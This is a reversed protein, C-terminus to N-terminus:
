KVILKKSITGFDTDIKMLYIGKAYRSTNISKVATTNREIAAYVERGELNYIAIHEIILGPKVKVFVHSTTPNPYVTIADEVHFDDTGLSSQYCSSATMSLQNCITTSTSRSQVDEAGILDEPSLTRLSEGSSISYHMVVNTDVVHGLQHGHGLEHVTVTEFDVQDNAPPNTSYNWNQNTNFVIDMETVYWKIEGSAEDYCGSYRSYCQGLTGNGMTDDFTIVNVGDNANKNITTTASAIEWNVGTSCTWSEFARTFAENAGSNYFDENMTWTNGGNDNNDIHQTQYAMEGSGANYNLNIQSFDISLANSSVISGNAATNVKITGTGALDPIEVEIKSDTWSAIQNDLADSHLYGGYNADSFGVTGQIAGFGSGNITLVSKTGASSSSSSFSTIAVASSISKSTSSAKNSTVNLDLSKVQKYNEKTYNSIKSYFTNSIGKYVGFANAVIDKDLAYKYFGQASSVSSFANQNGGKGSLNAHPNNRLMFTGFDGKKLNLSHSVIEATLEVVGGKTIIEITNQVQGKFVKYVEVTHATYINHHNDDWFSEKSIVKGEVIQSALDIQKHIPIEFIVEQSLLPTSPLLVLILLMMSRVLTYNAM